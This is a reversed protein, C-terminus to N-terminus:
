QECFPRIENTIETFDYPRSQPSFYTRDTLIDLETGFYTNLVVRFSNVPSINHSLQPPNGPLYYASLISAREFLCTRDISDRRLLSGPGHDGQILIVPPRASNDLIADVAIQMQSNIYRLQEIYQEQYEAPSGGFAEGDGALYPRSDPLTSPTAM